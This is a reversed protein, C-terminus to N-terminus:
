NKRIKMESFSLSERKTKWNYWTIYKEGSGNAQYIGNLNSHSCGNFWWGGHAYIACNYNHSDNDKDKTTFKQGNHYTLSNGATGTYGSVTLKYASTGDDVNFTSFKAYAANFKFDALEVRLSNTAGAKTLRHIKSLGLWFEGDLKGFGKEYDEWDRYFDVSGDMRRQFITWGGGDTSM